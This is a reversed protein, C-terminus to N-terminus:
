PELVFAGPDAYTASEAPQSREIVQPHTAHAHAIVDKDVEGADYPCLVSIPSSAFVLNLLSEYRCWLRTEAASRGAWIPEGLIRVWPAGSELSSNLFAQYAGLAGAPTRYWSTQEGFRVSRSRKGLAKKLVSIRDAGTVVLAAESRDIAETIFPAATALFEEETEFVCARHELMPRGGAGSVLYDVTVGLAAALALLTPLRLNQRRGNEVQAIASWSLGAHFALAERNWGLRERAGRVRNGIGSDQESNM